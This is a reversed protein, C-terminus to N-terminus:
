IYKIIESVLRVFDKEVRTATEMVENHNLPQDLVGAALNTICSIGLSKMGGHNAVIVEPVTSMGVADAGLLALAKIEAPTEYMPGQMYAYVGIETHIALKKAINSALNLLEKDYARTMDPFRTGFNEINKGRLPSPAFFSLHDKIFMLTGPEYNRNVGGAANTVILKEIGMAKFVRVPFVVKDIDNGEYYHFRGKMALVYKEDIRGFILKGEHGHVSTAAFGKIENYPIEISNTISKTLGGLGSGLIVAVDPKIGIKDMIGKASNLALEYQNEM